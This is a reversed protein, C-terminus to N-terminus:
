DLRSAGAAWTEGVGCVMLAPPRMISYLSMSAKISIAFHRRQAFLCSNSSYKIASLKSGFTKTLQKCSATWRRLLQCLGKSWFIRGNLLMLLQTKSMSHCKSHAVYTAKTQSAWCPSLLSAQPVWWCMCIKSTGLTMYTYQLYSAARSLEWASTAAWHVVWGGERGAEGEEGM